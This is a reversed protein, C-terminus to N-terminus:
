LFITKAAKRSFLKFGCQSDLIGKVGILNQVFFNNIHMLINRYWPRKAVVDAVIHNRSGIVLAGTKDVGDENKNQIEDMAKQLKEYDKIDTAGDADLMLINKGRAYKM